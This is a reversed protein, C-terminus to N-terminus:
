VGLQIKFVFLNQIRCKTRFEAQKMLFTLSFTVWNHWARQLGMSQATWLIKWALIISHTVKGKELPDEWCLSWIWTEWMAPLNKVLQIVLSAWSYQFPYGIGEGTSKGSGPISGPDGTNCASEKGASSCPFFIMHLVELVKSHCPIFLCLHGARILQWFNKYHLMLQSCQRQFPLELVGIGVVSGTM